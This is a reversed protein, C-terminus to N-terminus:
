VAVPNASYAYITPVNLFFVPMFDTGAGVYMHNAVGATSLKYCGLLINQSQLDTDDKGSAVTLSAPSTTNFKYASYNPFQWTTGATTFNNAAMMGSTTAGNLATNKMFSTTAADSGAAAISNITPRPLSYNPVRAVCQMTPYSGDQIMSYNISGRQGVFAAIIWHLYTTACYNFGFNSAPVILGKAIDWGQTNYGYFPPIKYMQIQKYVTTASISGAVTITRYYQFRRLLQRISVINEGFNILYRQPDTRPVSHGAIIEKSETEEYEDSQPAFYSYWPAIDTPNAFELNDAGRVSVIVQITSSLVPATLKTVVRVALMGNTYTPLHKFTTANGITFPVQAQQQPNFTQCWALAQQYPVRIEVNTDKTLDVIENFVTSQTSTTNLINTTANASPDYIIRVRGRHYQTCIFRFRYIIDGRWHAFMASTFCMPTMFLLPNASADADFTEPTVAASFLLADPSDTSAWPFQCLYAEKSALYNVSLEDHPPLGVASPDVTLENKPDITLKEVPYSIEPAALQPIGQNKVPKTDEIVPPNSFGLSSAISAVTSAGIQTATAFSGIVPLKSLRGAVDSVATAVSSVSDMKYEDSQLLLGATPGSLVVNEAWAYFSLTVGAGTVGNASTLPTVVQWKLQGMDLFDQNSITSIWNKPYLFPLTLEGGENNQPYIWIHPRQSYLIFERNSSAVINETHFNPLPLYSVLFAGYYFPSANMMIKIKLDCRLWAFNQLKNKITANNFFVQWPSMSTGTGTPDSEDWQVTGLLVPRSLFDKLDAGLTADGGCGPHLQANFGATYRNTKELFTVTQNKEEEINSEETTGLAVDESQSNWLFTGLREYCHYSEVSSSQPSDLPVPGPESM